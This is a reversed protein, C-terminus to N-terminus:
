GEVSERFEAATQGSAKSLLFADTGIAVLACGYRRGLGVASLTPLFGGLVKNHKVVAASMTSLVEELFADSLPKDLTIGSSLAMDGPGLLLVDVGPVAAIAEVNDLGTRTEIQVILLTEDNAAAAYGRGERVLLRTSGFSRRGVPPFKAATAAAAAQEATEIMPVMVGNAGADLAHLIAGEDLCPIRVACPVRAANCAAISARLSQSDFDGHQDDVWVWDWDKALLEAVVPAGFCMVVGFLPKEGLGADQWANKM